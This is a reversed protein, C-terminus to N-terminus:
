KILRLDCFNVRDGFDGDTGFDVIIELRLSDPLPLVLARPPDGTRILEKWLEKDGARIKVEAENAFDNTADMGVTGRLERFPSDLRYIARSFSHLSIGNACSFLKRENPSRLELKGEHTGSVRRMGYLWDQLGQDLEGGSVYPRIELGDPTLDCLLVRDGSHVKLERLQDLPLALNTGTATTISLQDPALYSASTCLLRDGLTTQLEFIAPLGGQAAGAAFVMGELKSRSVAIVEDGYKFQVQSADMSQIVGDLFDVRGGDRRIILADGDFERRTIENWAADVQSSAPRLRIRKTGKLSLKWTVGAPRQLEISDGAVTLNTGILTSGDAADLVIPGVSAPHLKAPPALPQLRSLVRLPIVVPGQDTELEVADQDLRRIQGVKADQDQVDAQFTITAFLLAAVFPLM